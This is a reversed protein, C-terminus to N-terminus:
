GLNQYRRFLLWSPEALFENNLKGYKIPLNLIEDNYSRSTKPDEIAGHNEFSNSKGHIEHYIILKANTRLKDLM